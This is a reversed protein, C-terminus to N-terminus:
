LAPVTMRETVGPLDKEEKKTLLSKKHGEAGHSTMKTQGASGVLGGGRSVEDM